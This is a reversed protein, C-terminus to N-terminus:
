FTKDIIFQASFFIDVVMASCLLILRVPRVRLKAHAIFFIIATTVTGLVYMWAESLLVAAYIDGLGAFLPLCGTALLLTVVSLMGMVVAVALVLKRDAFGASAFAQLGAGILISCCLAPISLWIFPSVNLFAKCFALITGIAFIIMVGFRRAALLMLLGAILAAIPVHYFGLGAPEANVKVLPVALAALDTLHLRNQIPVPFLGYSAALEFFLLVALFPLVSLPIALFRWKVKVVFAAPCFLWPIAAALLDASPHYGALHLTFPGFGYIAGAFFSGVFSGVWRRSLVFCGLAALSANLIILHQAPGVSKFYPLYLYVAFVAYLAAAALFKSYRTNPM